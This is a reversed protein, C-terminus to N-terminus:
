VHRRIWAGVRRFLGPWGGRPALAESAFFWLATLVAAILAVAFVWWFKVVLYVIGGVFGLVLLMGIEQSRVEGSM